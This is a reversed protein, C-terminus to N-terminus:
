TMDSTIPSKKTTETKCLQHCGEFALQVFSNDTPTNFGMAHHGMKNLIFATIIEFKM